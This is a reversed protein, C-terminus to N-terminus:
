REVLVHTIIFHDNVVGIGIGGENFDPDLLNRRHGPSDLWLQVAKQAIRTETLWDRNVWEVDRITQLIRQREEIATDVESRTSVMPDLSSAAPCLVPGESVLYRYALRTTIPFMALNEGVSRYFIDYSKVREAVSAGFTFGTHRLLPYSCPLEIPTLDINDAVQDQSHRRAVAAVDVNWILSGLGRQNREDNILNQIEREIAAVNYTPGARVSFDGDAILPIVPEITKPTVTATNERLVTGASNLGALENLKARTQPGVIGLAPIGYRAQFRKVAQETLPGYYGTVRGEPYIGPLVRLFEQLSSVEPHSLGKHLFTTFSAPTPARPSPKSLLSQLEAQLTSIQRAISDIAAQFDFAASASSVLLLGLFIIM